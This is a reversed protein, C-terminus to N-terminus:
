DLLGARAALLGAQFRSAAGLSEMVEAIHRRCSRVSMGLKRAVVEDKMGEGLLHLISQKLDDYHGAETDRSRTEFPLARNWLYDLAGYLYSVTSREQVLVAGAPADAPVDRDSLIAVSRDVVVIPAVVEDVTRIQAGTEALQELRHLSGANYRVTHPLLVRPRVEAEVLDLLLPLSLTSEDTLDTGSAAVVDEQCRALHQTLSTWTEVTPPLVDIGQLRGFERVTVDYVPRVRAIRAQVSAITAQRDTIEQHLPAVAQDAAVEPSVPVFSGDDGPLPLLLKLDCLHRLARGLRQESLALERGVEATYRGHRVSLRYLDLVDADLESM